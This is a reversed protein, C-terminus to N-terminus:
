AAPVTGYARYDDLTAGAEALGGQQSRRALDGRVCAICHKASPRVVRALVDKTRQGLLEQVREGELDGWLPPVLCRGSVRDGLYTSPNAVQSEPSSDEDCDVVRL